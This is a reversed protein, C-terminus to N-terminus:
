FPVRLGGKGHIVTRDDSMAIAEGTGFFSVNQKLRWEFGAGAYLGAVNDESPTAFPNNGAPEATGQEGASTNRL